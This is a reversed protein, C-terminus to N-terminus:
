RESAPGCALAAAALQHMSSEKRADENTRQTQCVDVLAKAHQEAERFARQVADMSGELTVTENSKSASDQLIGDVQISLMRM